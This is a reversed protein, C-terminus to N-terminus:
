IKPGVLALALMDLADRGIRGLLAVMARSSGDTQQTSWSAWDSFVTSGFSRKEGGVVQGLILQTSDTTKGLCNALSM